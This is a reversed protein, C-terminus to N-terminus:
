EEEQAVAPASSGVPVDSAEAGDERGPEANMEAAGDFAGEGERRADRDSDIELWDRDELLLWRKLRSEVMERGSAM